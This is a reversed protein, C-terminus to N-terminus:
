FPLEDDDDVNDSNLGESAIQKAIPEVYKKTAYVRNNDGDIEYYRRKVRDFFFDAEGRSAVSEPKSKNVIVKVGNESGNERHVTIMVKGADYWTTGGKLDYPTAPLRNGNKDKETKLPHIIIHFHINCVDCLDNRYGLVDELYLDDRGIANGKRDVFRKMDKWSDITATQIGGEVESSYEIALDWFEYPTIKSKKDKKYLIRFYHLIWPM